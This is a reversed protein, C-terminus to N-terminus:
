VRGRISSIVPNVWRAAASRIASSAEQQKSMSDPLFIRREDRSKSYYKAVSTMGEIDAVSFELGFHDMIEGFVAHPLSRYDIARGLDNLNDRAIECFRGLTRALYEEDSILLAEERDVGMFRLFGDGGSAMVKFYVPRKRVASVMVEIPDRYLFIWPVHPFAQLILPLYFINWSRFKVVYNRELGSLSQGLASILVRLSILLQDYSWQMDGPYLLSNIATPESIVLNSELSALMQAILTSGCRSMQFIFGKPELRKLALVERLIAPDLNTVRGPLDNNASYKKVTDAFFPEKFCIGGLKQWRAFIGGESLCTEVPTFGAIGKDM